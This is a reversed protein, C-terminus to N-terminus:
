EDEKKEGMEKLQALDQLISENEQNLLSVQMALEQNKMTLVSVARSVGFLFLMLVVMLLTLASLSAWDAALLLIGAVLLLVAILAWILGFGETLKKRAYTLFDAALLVISLAILVSGLIVEFNM